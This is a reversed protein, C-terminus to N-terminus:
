LNIPGTSNRIILEVPIVIKRTKQKVETILEYLREMATLGMEKKFIRVTTLAPTLHRGTEIDDFGVVSFDEPVSYGLKQIAKITGIARSDNVAFFATPKEIAADKLMETVTEYASETGYSSDGIKILNDNIPLSYKNLANLYGTYREEFSTNDLPGSIFSIKRHGLKILHSMIKKAGAINDNLVCDINEQWFHNDIVVVPMGREKIQGILKEDILYGIFVMGAIDQNDFMENIIKRDTFKHGTISKIIMEYDHEKIFTELGLAIQAYFPNGFLGGQKDLRNNFITAIYKSNSNHKRNYKRHDYGLQNATMLIKDRTSASINGKDNIVRSVTSISYGTASAIDSLTVAVM